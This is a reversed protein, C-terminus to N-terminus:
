DRRRRRWAEPNVLTPPRRGEGIALLVSAAALATRRLAEASSGAAHPSLVVNSLGLLPHDPAMRESHFVDLGAGAIRGEALARVLAPEDVLGGRATNVLMATPKMRAIRRADLLGRTRDTLPLHLSVVDAVALVADLDAERAVGAGRLWAPHDPPSYVVVRMGLAVRAMRATEAGIRGCGVIGLTKGSLEVLRAHYKFDFRGERVARDGAPVRRAVALMLALAHEAVSRANAGPTNAVPIGLATAHAVDIPDLGVGHVAVARLRPAADMAAADLGANRTVLGDAEAIERAVTAMDPRSALRVEVGRAQLAAVGAEDIPQVLLVRRIM